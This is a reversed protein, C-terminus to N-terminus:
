WCGSPWWRSAGQTSRNWRKLRQVDAVKAGDIVIAGAVVDARQRQAERLIAIALRDTFRTEIREAQETSLPFFVPRDVV